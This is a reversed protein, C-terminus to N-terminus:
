NKDNEGENEAFNEAILLDNDNVEICKFFCWVAMLSLFLIIFGTFLITNLDDVRM